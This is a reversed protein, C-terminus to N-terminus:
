AQGNQHPICDWVDVLKDQGIVLTRYV